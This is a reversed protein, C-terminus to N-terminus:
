TLRDKLRLFPEEFFWRSLYALIVAASGAIVFRLWMATWPHFRTTLGPFHSLAIHDFGAFVMQHVMYLGYSINGFFILSPPVVVAKWKTTGALLFLGLLGVFAINWPVGQLVAGTPTQRTFIGFHWGAVAIGFSAGLCLLCIRRLAHRESSFERLVIALLAGCALGDASNWTYYFCGSDGFGTHSAHLYCAWRFLPSAVVIAGAILALRRPSMRRVAAPWILYFQEEVALSWLVPYSMAIGFLLAFNACYFLSMWFFPRSAVGAFLLILLVLYYAPLIRLARRIYFRRYYDTRPKSDLLLGTILFGSLVFFLNVGFQGASFLFVFHKQWVSFSSFDRAWYLGHYFLVALSAIGRVVDLEPMKPRLIPEFELGEPRLDQAGAPSSIITTPTVNLCLNYDAKLEDVAHSM